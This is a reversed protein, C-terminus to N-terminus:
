SIAGVHKTYYKGSCGVKYKSNGDIAINAFAWIIEKEFVWRFVFVIATRSLELACSESIINADLHDFFRIIANSAFELKVEM